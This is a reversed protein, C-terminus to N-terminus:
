QNHSGRMKNRRGALFNIKWKNQKAKEEKAIDEVIDANERTM